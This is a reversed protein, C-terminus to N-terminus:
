FLAIEMPSYLIVMESGQQLKSRDQSCENLFFSRNRTYRIAPKRCTESPNADERLSKDPELESPIWVGATKPLDLNNCSLLGESFLVKRPSAQKTRGAM